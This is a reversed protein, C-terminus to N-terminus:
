PPPQQRAPADLVSRAARHYNDIEARESDSLRGEGSAYRRATRANVDVDAAAGLIDHRSSRGAGRERGISERTPSFDPAMVPDARPTPAIPAPRQATAPM